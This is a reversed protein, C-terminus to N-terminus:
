SPWQGYKTQPKPLRLIRLQISRMAAYWRVGKELSNEGFKEEIRKTLKRGLWVCDLITAVVLAWMGIMSFMVIDQNPLSMMIIVVIMAPILVEGVNFRADVWDRTFRRQAGRDRPMLYREEGRAMGSQAKQREARAREKQARKDVILPRRNAAEREARTPTPRDKQRADRQEIAEENANDESKM